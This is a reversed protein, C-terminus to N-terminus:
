VLLLLQSLESITRFNEQGRQLESRGDSRYNTHLRDIGQGYQLCVTQLGAKQAGEMDRYPDDGVMLVQSAGLQMQKCALDYIRADPKKLGVEGSIVQVSFLGSLPGEDMIRHIHPGHDFNTLLGLPIKKQQLQRCVNQAEPNWTIQHHWVDLSDLALQQAWQRAPKAQMQLAWNWIRTEYVTLFPLPEIQGSFFGDLSESIEARSKAASLSHLGQQMCDLWSEWAKQMDGYLLLTGYLDFLVGQVPEPNLTWSRM